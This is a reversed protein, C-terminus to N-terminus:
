EGPQSPTTSVACVAAQALLELQAPTMGRLVRYHLDEAAAALAAGDADTTTVTRCLSALVGFFDAPVAVVTGDGVAPPSEGGAHTFSPSPMAPAAAAVSSRGVATASSAKVSPKSPRPRVYTWQPSRVGPFRALLAAHEGAEM